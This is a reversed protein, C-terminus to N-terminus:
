AFVAFEAQLELLEERHEAVFVQRPEALMREVEAYFPTACRVFAKVEPSRGRAEQDSLWDLYADIQGHPVGGDDIAPAGSGTMCRHFEGWMPGAEVEAIVEDVSVAFELRLREIERRWRSAKSTDLEICRTVTSSAEHSVVDPRPRGVGEEALTRLAPLDARTSSGHFLYWDMMALAWSSEAEPLGSGKLCGTITKARAWAYGDVFLREASRGDEGNIPAVYDFFKPDVTGDRPADYAVPSGGDEGSGTVVVDGRDPGLGLLMTGTVGVVLVTVAVWRLPTRVPGASRALPRAAAVPEFARPVVDVRSSVSTLATVIRDEIPRGETGSSGREATSNM